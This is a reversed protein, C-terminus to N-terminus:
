SRIVHQSERRVTYIIKKLRSPLYITNDQNFCKLSNVNQKFENNDCHLMYKQKKQLNIKVKITKNIIIIKYQIKITIIILLRYHM